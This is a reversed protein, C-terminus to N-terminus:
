YLFRLVHINEQSITITNKKANEITKVVKAITKSIDNLQLNLEHKGTTLKEFDLINNILRSLREADQLMNNLFKNKIALPMDADDLLLETSARIGTLPTKLEHAVTDLFEDKQVDKEILETNAIQLKDTLKTLEKSKEELIKRQAIAEKSEELVNLVEPLSVAEEKVVSSILIKASASGVSGTLLKESFNILKADAIQTNQPLNYKTFFIRLAKNSKELGLFRILVDKIDAVFAEGKWVYAGDQLQDYQKSDVFMEAYNRERYNGKTNLSFYLYCLTNVSISWFFAHAAPSLFDIGFLAHPMLWHQSFLGQDAFTSDGTFAKLGFPLLL